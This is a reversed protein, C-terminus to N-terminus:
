KLSIVVERGSVIFSCTPLHTPITSHLHSIFPFLAGSHPLFVTCSGTCASCDCPASHSHGRLIDFVSWEVKASLFAFLSYWCHNFLLYIDSECLFVLISFVIRELLVIFLYIGFVVKLIFMLARLHIVSIFTGCLFPSYTYCCFYISLHYQIISYCIFPCLLVMLMLYRTMCTYFLLRCCHIDGFSLIYCIYSLCVRFYEAYFLLFSILM